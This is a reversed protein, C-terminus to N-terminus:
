LTQGLEPQFLTNRITRVSTPGLCGKPIGLEPLDIGLETCWGPPATELQRLLHYDDHANKDHRTERILSRPGKDKWHLTSCEFDSLSPQFYGQAGPLSYINGVSDFSEPMNSFWFSLASAGDKERRDHIASSNYQRFTRSM